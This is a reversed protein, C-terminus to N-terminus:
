KEPVIRRTSGGGAEDRVDALAEQAEAESDFTGSFVVFSDPGLSEFDNSDLVGVDPVGKSALEGALREADEQSGSSNLVVTWATRGEPWETLGPSATSGGSEPTASPTASPTPVPTPTEGGEAAPAPTASPAVSPTPTAAVEQVGEADRALEFIALAVAILALALLVGVVAVSARWGRPEAIRTGVAAGCELCWEQEASLRADCRPCRREVPTPPPPTEVSSV